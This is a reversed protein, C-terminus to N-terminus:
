SIRSFSLFLKVAISQELKSHASVKDICSLAHAQFTFVDTLRDTWSCINSHGWM